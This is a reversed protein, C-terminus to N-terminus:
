GQSKCPGITIAKINRRFSILSSGSFLVWLLKALLSPLYVLWTEKGYSIFEPYTIIVERWGLGSTFLLMWLPISNYVQYYGGQYHLPYTSVILIGLFVGMSKPSSSFLKEYFYQCVKVFILTVLFALPYGLFWSILIAIMIESVGRMLPQPSRWSVSTRSCAITIHSPNM